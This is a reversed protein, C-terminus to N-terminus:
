LVRSIAGHEVHFLAPASAPALYDELGRGLATVFAQAELEELHRLVMEQRQGDLEAALDDVLMVVTRGTCERFLRAQALMMAYSLHKQQGRSLVEGAPKGGVRVRMDGRHPGAGTFGQSRDRIFGRRLAEEFSDGQRWGTEVGFRLERGDGLLARGYAELRPCLQEFYRARYGAVSEGVPGLQADWAAIEAATGRSRLLRNRQELLRQYRRWVPLYSQEVHFVGWDLYRRREKPGGEILTHVDPSLVVLPLHRALESRNRQEEGGVRIRVVGRRHRSVGLHVEGGPESRVVGHVLVSDTGNQILNEHHHTRFSIALGLLHIAELLSTKGSANEGYILNFRPSPSGLDVM